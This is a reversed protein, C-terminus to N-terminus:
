STICVGAGAHRADDFIDTPRWMLVPVRRSCTDTEKRNKTQQSLLFPLLSPELTLTSPSHHHTSSVPLPSCLFDIFLLFDISTMPDRDWDSWNQGRSPDDARVCKSTYM